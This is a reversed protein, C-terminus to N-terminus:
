TNLLNFEVSDSVFVTCVLFVLQVVKIIIAFEVSDM